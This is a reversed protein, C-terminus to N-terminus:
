FDGVTILVIGLTEIGYVTLVTAVFHFLCINCYFFCITEIGYVTLVTAVVDSTTITM